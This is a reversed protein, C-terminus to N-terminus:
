RLKPAIRHLGPLSSRGVRATPNDPPLTVASTPSSPTPRSSEASRNNRSDAASSTTFGLRVGASRGIGFV